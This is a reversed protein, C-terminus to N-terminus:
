RFQGQTFPPRGTGKGKRACFVEGLRQFEAPGIRGAFLSGFGPALDSIGFKALDPPAKPASPLKLWTVVLDKLPTKDQRSARLLPRFKEAPNKANATRAVLSKGELALSAFFDALWTHERPRWELTISETRLAHRTMSFISGGKEAGVAERLREFNMRSDTIVVTRELEMLRGIVTGLLIALTEAENNDAAAASLSVGTGIAPIWVGLGAAGLISDEVESSGLGQRFGADVFIHLDGLM